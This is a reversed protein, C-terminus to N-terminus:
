PHPINSRILAQWGLAARLGARNTCHSGATDASRELTKDERSDDMALLNSDMACKDLIATSYKAGLERTCRVLVLTGLDLGTKVKLVSM